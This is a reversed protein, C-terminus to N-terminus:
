PPPKPDVYKAIIGMAALPLHLFRCGGRVIQRGDGLIITATHRVELDVIVPEWDLYQLRCGVLVAGPELASASDVDMGIGGQSVDTVVAEIMVDASSYVQCVLPPRPDQTRPYM